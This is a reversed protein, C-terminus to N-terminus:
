IAKGLTQSTTCNTGPGPKMQAKGNLFVIIEGRGLGVKIVRNLSVKLHKVILFVVKM